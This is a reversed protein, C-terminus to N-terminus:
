LAEQFIDRLVVHCFQSKEAYAYPDSLGLMNSFLQNFRTGDTITNKKRFAHQHELLNKEIALQRLIIKDQAGSDNESFLFNESFPIQFAANMVVPHWFLHYLEVGHAWAFFPSFERSWFTREILSKLDTVGAVAMYATHQLMSGFLLDAGYGTAIHKKHHAAAKSLISLQVLTEATLGDLIENCFIVHKFHTAIEEAQALVSHHEVSLYHATELAEQCESGLASELTYAGLADVGVRKLLSTCVSSDVGGSLFCGWEKTVCLKEKASAILADALAAKCLESSSHMTEPSFNLISEGQEFINLSCDVRFTAGPTVRQINKYPSYQARNLPPMSTDSKLEVPMLNKLASLSKVESTIILYDEAQM